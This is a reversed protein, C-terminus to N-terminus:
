RTLHLRFSPRTTAPIKGGYGQPRGLRSFAIKCVTTSAPGAFLSAGEGVLGDLGAQMGQGLRYPSRGSQSRRPRTDMECSGRAGAGNSQRSPSPLPPTQRLITSSEVLVIRPRAEACASGTMKSAAIPVLGRLAILPKLGAEERPSDSPNADGERPREKVAPDISRDSTQTRSGGAALRISECRRRAAERERRSRYISHPPRRLFHCSRRQM